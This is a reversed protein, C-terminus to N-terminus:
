DESEPEAYLPEVWAIGRHNLDYAHPRMDHAAGRMKLIRLYRILDGSRYQHYDLQIVGSAIYREQTGLFLPQRRLTQGRDRVAECAMVSTVHNEELWRILNFIHLRRGKTEQSPVANMDFNSLLASLSDITIIIERGAGIGVFLEALLDKLLRIRKLPDDLPMTVLNFLRCPRGGPTAMKEGHEAAKADVFVDSFPTERSTDANLQDIRQPASEDDQWYLGFFDNHSAEFGGLSLNYQEWPEPAAKEDGSEHLRPYRLRDELRGSLFSTADIFVYYDQPPNEPSGANIERFDMLTSNNECIRRFSSELSVFCRVTGKPKREETRTSSSHQLVMRDIAALTREEEPRQDALLKSSAADDKSKGVCIGNGPRFHGYRFLSLLFTTKGTGPDGALAVTNGRPIGM